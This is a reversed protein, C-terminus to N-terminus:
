EHHESTSLTGELGQRALRPNDLLLGVTLDSRAIQQRIPEEQVPDLKDSQIVARALRGLREYYNLSREPDKLKENSIKAATELADLARLSKPDAEVALDLSLIAEDWRGQSVKTKAHELLRSQVEESPQGQMERALLAAMEAERAIARARAMEQSRASDPAKPKEEPASRKKPEPRPVEVIRVSAPPTAAPRAALRAKLDQISSVLVENQGREHAFLSFGVLTAAWGVAFSARLWPSWRNSYERYRLSEDTDIAARLRALSADEPGLEADTAYASGVLGLLPMLEATPDSPPEQGSRADEVARWLRLSEDKEKRRKWM